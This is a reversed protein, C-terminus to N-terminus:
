GIGVLEETEECGDKVGTGPERCLSAKNSQCIIARGIRSCCNSMKILIFDYSLTYLSMFMAAVM